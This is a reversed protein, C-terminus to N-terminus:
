KSTIESLTFLYFCKLGWAQCQVTDTAAAASINKTVQSVSSHHHCVSAHGSLHHQARYKLTAWEKGETYSVGRRGMTTFIEWDTKSTFSFYSDPYQNVRACQLQVAFPHVQTSISLRTCHNKAFYSTKYKRSGKVCELNRTDVGTISERTCTDSAMVITLKEEDRGGYLM